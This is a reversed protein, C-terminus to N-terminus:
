NKELFLEQFDKNLYDRKSEVWEEVSKKSKETGGLVKLLFDRETVSPFNKKGIYDQYSSWKFEKLFDLAKKVNDIKGSEWNKDFLSIANAHIYNFVIELQTNGNIKVALFRNQFLYGKREYKKNFYSAYGTGVKKMYRTIGDDKIQELLLHLHNPMFCFALVNVFKDRGDLLKSTIGDSTDYSARGRRSSTPGRREQKQIEKIRKIEQRRRFINVPNVNNFEYISFIGRFYDDTDRFITKGDIGRLITHCIDGNDFKQKRNPM